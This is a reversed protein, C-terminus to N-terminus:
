RERASLQFDSDSIGLCGLFNAHEIVGLSSTASCKIKAFVKDQDAQIMYQRTEQKPRRHTNTYYCPAQDTVM